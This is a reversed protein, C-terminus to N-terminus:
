QAQRCGIINGSYTYVTGPVTTITTSVPQNVKADPHAKNWAEELAKIRSTHDDFYWENHYFRQNTRDFQARVNDLGYATTWTTVITAIAGVIILIMGCFTIFIGVGQFFTSCSDQQKAM